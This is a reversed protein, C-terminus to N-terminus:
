RNLDKEIEELSLSLKDKHSELINEFQGQNMFRLYLAGSCAEWIEGRLRNPLGVRILKAFNSARMMTLNRGNALFHAKTIIV